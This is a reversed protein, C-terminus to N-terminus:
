RWNRKGKVNRTPKLSSHNQSGGLEVAPTDDSLLYYENEPVPQSRKV